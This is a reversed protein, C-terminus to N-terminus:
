DEFAHCGLVIAPDIDPRRFVELGSEELLTIIREEEIEANFQELELGAIAEARDALPLAGRDIWPKAADLLRARVLEPDLFSLIAAVKSQGALMPTAEAMLDHSHRSTPSALTQGLCADDVQNAWGQVISDVRAILDSECCRAGAIADRERKLREIDQRVAELSELTVQKQKAM